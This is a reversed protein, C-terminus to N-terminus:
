HILSTGLNELACLSLCPWPTDVPVPQAPCPRACQPPLSLLGPHLCGQQQKILQTVWPLHGRQESVQTDMPLVFLAIM